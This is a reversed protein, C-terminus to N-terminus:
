KADIRGQAYGSEYQAALASRIAEWAIYRREGILDQLQDALAETAAKFSLQKHLETTQPDPM